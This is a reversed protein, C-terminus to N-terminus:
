TCRASRSAGTALGGRQGYPGAGEVARGLYRAIGCGAVTEHQTRKSHQIKVADEMQSIRNVSAPLKRPTVPIEESIRGAPQRGAEERNLTLLDGGPTLIRHVKYRNGKTLKVVVGMNGRENNLMVPAAITVTDHNNGKHKVHREIEIGQKLVKPIAPYAAIVARRTNEKRTKSKPSPLYNFSNDIQEADLEVKGILKTDVVRFPKLINIAWKIMKKVDFPDITDPVKISAVPDMANLEDEHARIQDQLHLIEEQEEKSYQVRGGDEAANKNGEVDREAERNQVAEALAKDWRAQLAEANEMLAKAEPHRADVGGFAAKIKKVWGDLWDCIQRLLTPNERALIEPAHTDRLMTECGDAVVESLAEEYSIGGRTKRKAEM